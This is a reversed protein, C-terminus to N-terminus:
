EPDGSACASRVAPENGSDVDAGGTVGHTAKWGYRARVAAADLGAELLRECLRRKTGSAPLGLAICARRLTAGGTCHLDNLIRPETGPALSGSWVRRDAM